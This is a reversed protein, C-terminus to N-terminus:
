LHSARSVEGWDRKLGNRARAETADVAVEDVNLEACETVGDIDEVEVRTEVGTGAELEVLKSVNSISKDRSVASSSM